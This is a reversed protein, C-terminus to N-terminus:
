AGCPARCAMPPKPIPRDSTRSKALSWPPVTSARLLPSPVPLSNMTLSGDDSSLWLVAGALAGHQPAGGSAGSVPFRHGPAFSRALCSNLWRIAQIATKRRDQGGSSAMASRLGSGQESHCPSANRDRRKQRTRLPHSRTEQRGRALRPRAGLGPSNVNARRRQFETTELGPQSTSAHSTM